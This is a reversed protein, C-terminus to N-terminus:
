GHDSTSSQKTTCRKARPADIQRGEQVIETRCLRALLRSAHHEKHLCIADVWVLNLWLCDFSVFFGLLKFLLREVADLQRQTQLGQRGPLITQRDNLSQGAPDGTATM